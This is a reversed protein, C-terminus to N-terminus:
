SKIVRRERVGVNGCEVADITFGEMTESSSTSSKLGPISKLGEWLEDDHYNRGIDFLYDDNDRKEAEGDQLLEGSV